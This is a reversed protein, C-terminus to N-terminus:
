LKMGKKIKRIPGNLNIELDGSKILDYEGFHKLLHHHLHIPHNFIDHDYVTGHYMDILQVRDSFTDVPVVMYTEEAEDDQGCPKIVILDTCKIYWAEKNALRQDKILM